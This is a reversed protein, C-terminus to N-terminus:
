AVARDALKSQSQLLVGSVAARNVPKTLYEDMGAELCRLRDGALANATLAVIVVQDGGSLKRIARTADYGNMNPMQCDMFIVDFGDKEFSTIAQLGDNATQAAIGLKRLMGLMVTRNVPNDDVVLIRFNAAVKPAIELCTTKAAMTAMTFPVEFIFSAGEGLTSEVWIRGGMATILQNSISLGLGTGKVDVRKEDQVQEFAEFIRD